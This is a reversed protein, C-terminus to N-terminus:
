GRAARRTIATALERATATAIEAWTFARARARGDDGLQKRRAGDDVIGALREALAEDDGPPFLAGGVGGGSVERFAPIDAAVYPVGLAMAEVLVIGFGEVESASVVAAAGAMASLVDAHRPVFGRLEVRDAVGLGRALDRLREREPGQGVLLLSLDPRTETLRAFARIVVDNRKYGVLRGVVVIRRGDAEEPSTGDVLDPEVGCPVVAIRDAPVGQGVLKSATSESIALYRDVPLRLLAREVLEGVAGEAGDFSGSRWSGILVDAYWLVVPRRRVKAIVWALPDVVITTGVVVDFDSQMGKVFARALFWLRKPNSRLTAHEWVAGDSLRAILEVDHGQDRLHRSVYHCYAETGGTIEADESRPLYETVILIRM